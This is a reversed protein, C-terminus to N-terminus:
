SKRKRNKAARGLMFNGSYRDFFTERHFPFNDRSSACTFFFFSGKKKIWPHKKRAKTAMWQNKRERSDEHSKRSVIKPSPFFLIGHVLMSGSFGSSLFINAWKKRGNSTYFRTFCSSTKVLNSNSQKKDSEVWNEDFTPINRLDCRM